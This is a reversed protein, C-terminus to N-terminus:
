IQKLNVRFQNKVNEFKVLMKRNICTVKLARFTEQPDYIQTVENWIM